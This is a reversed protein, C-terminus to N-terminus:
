GTKPPTRLILTAKQSMKPKNSGCVASKSLLM